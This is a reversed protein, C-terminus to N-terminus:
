PFQRNFGIRFINDTIKTSWFYTTGGPIPDHGTGSISGLDLYLYEAKWTWLNDTGPVIGQVGAGVTWGANTSSGSYSWSCGTCGGDAVWGTAGVGGYALGGTAYLWLTPNVLVGGRARVTGFWLIKASQNLVCRTDSPGECDTAYSRSGKEAADQIDAELGWVWNTGVQWNYGIQGGGIIGDLHANGSFSSPPFFRPDTYTIKASGWSYGLNVGVYGGTWSFIAPPVPPAAYAPTAAALAVFSAGLLLHKKM